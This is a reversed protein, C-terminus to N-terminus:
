EQFIGGSHVHQKIAIQKVALIFHMNVNTADSRTVTSITTLIISYGKFTWWLKHLSRKTSWRLKNQEKETLSNQIPLSKQPYLNFWKLPEWNTYSEIELRDAAYTGVFPPRHVCIRQKTVATLFPFTKQGPITPGENRLKEVTTMM